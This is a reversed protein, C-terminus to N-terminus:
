SRGFGEALMEDADRASRGSTSAGLGIFGLKRRAPRDEALEALLQEATLKRRAAEAPLREAIEHETM